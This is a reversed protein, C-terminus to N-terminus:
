RPPSCSSPRLSKLKKFSALMNSLSPTSALQFGRMVKDETCLRTDVVSSLLAANRVDLIEKRQLVNLRYAPDEEFRIWETLFRKTEM